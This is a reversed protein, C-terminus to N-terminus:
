RNLGAKVFDVWRDLSREWEISDKIFPPGLLAGLHIQNPIRLLSVDSCGSERAKTVLWVADDLLVERGGVSVLIRSPLHKALDDWAQLYGFAAETRITTSPAFDENDSDGENDDIHSSYAAEMRDITGATLIDLEGNDHWSKGGADLGIYPSSLLLSHPKDQHEIKNYLTDLV